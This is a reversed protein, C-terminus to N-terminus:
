EHVASYRRRRRRWDRKMVALLDVNDSRVLMDKSGDQSFPDGGGNDPSNVVKKRPKILVLIFMGVVLLVLLLMIKRKISKRQYGTAIKLEKDAAKVEVRTREINYEIRDLMTGQDIVMAQLDQFINALDIIGQAIQEIERERQQIVSDQLAGRQKQKTQLLTSQASTRDSESEMLSPDIYPNYSSTTPPDLSIDFGDLARMKRLYAAQKRRFLGSIDGVRSALSIQLNKAMTEEASSINTSKGADKVMSEIRKISRGCDQFGKTIGQTMQEIVREEKKKVSEDDFGPLVHKQHLRELTTMDKTIEDLKDSVEDRIDLWRPPLLDMEIVVSGDDEFSPGSMLGRSEEDTAAANDRFQRIPATM